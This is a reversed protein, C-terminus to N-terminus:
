DNNQAVPKMAESEFVIKGGVMTMLVKIQFLIKAPHWYFILV